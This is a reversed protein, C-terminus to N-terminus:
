NPDPMQLARPPQFLHLSVSEKERLGAQPRVNCLCEAVTVGGVVIAPIAVSICMDLHRRLQDGIVQGKRVWSNM